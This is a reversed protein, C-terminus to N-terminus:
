SLFGARQAMETIVSRRVQFARRAAAPSPTDTWNGQGYLRDARDSTAFTRRVTATSCGLIEAIEATGIWGDRRQM